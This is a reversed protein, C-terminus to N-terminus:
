NIETPKSTGWYFSDTVAKITMDASSGYLKKMLQHYPDKNVWMMVESVVDHFSAAGYADAIVSKLSIIANELESIDQELLSVESDTMEAESKHAMGLLSNKSDLMVVVNYYVKMLDKINLKAVSM